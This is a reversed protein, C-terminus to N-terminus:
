DWKLPMLIAKKTMGNLDDSCFFLGEGYRDGAYVDFTEGKVIDLLYSINFRSETMDWLNWVVLSENEDGHLAGRKQYDMPMDSVKTIDPYQGINDPAEKISIKSKDSHVYIWIGAPIKETLDPIEAIHMRHGDTAIFKGQGDSYLGCLVKKIEDKSRARLVWALSSFNRDFKDVKEIVIANKQSEDAREAFPFAEQNSM